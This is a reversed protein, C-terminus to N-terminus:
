TLGSFIKPELQFKMKPTKPQTFNSHLCVKLSLKAEAGAVSLFSIGSGRNTSLLRYRLQLFAPWEVDM